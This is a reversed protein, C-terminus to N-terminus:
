DTVFCVLRDSCLFAKGCNRVMTSVPWTYHQGWQTTRNSKWKGSEFCYDLINEILSFPVPTVPAEYYEKVMTAYRMQYEEKAQSMVSTYTEAMMAILLNLLIIVTM